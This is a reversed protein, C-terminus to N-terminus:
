KREELLQCVVAESAEVWDKGPHDRRWEAIREDHKGDALEDEIRAEIATPGPERTDELHKDDTM